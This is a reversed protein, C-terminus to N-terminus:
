KNFILKQQHARWEKIKNEIQSFIGFTLSFFFSFDDRQKQVEMLHYFIKLIILIILKEIKLHFVVCTGLTHFPM